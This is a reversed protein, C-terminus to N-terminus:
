QDYSSLQEEDVGVLGVRLGAARLIECARHNIIVLVLVNVIPICLGIIAAWRWSKSTGISALLRFTIFMAYVAGLWVLGALYLSIAGLFHLVVLGIVVVTLKRQLTGIAKIREAHSSARSAYELPEIQM